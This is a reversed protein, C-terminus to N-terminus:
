LSRAWENVFIHPDSIGPFRFGTPAFGGHRYLTFARQNDDHVFLHMRSYGQEIADWVIVDLLQRGIGEGWREPVVFLLYLHCLGPTLPGGHMSLRGEERSIRSPEALTM